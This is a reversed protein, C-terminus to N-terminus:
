GAGLAALLLGIPVVLDGGSKKKTTTSANQLVGKVTLQVPNKSSGSGGDLETQAMLAKVADGDPLGDPELAPQNRKSNWWREFGLFAATTRDTWVGAFDAPSSGFPADPISYMADAHNRFFAALMIQVTAIQEASGTVVPESSTVVAPEAPVATQDGGSVKGPPPTGLGDDHPAALSPPPKIPVVDALPPAPAQQNGAQVIEPPAQPKQWSAPLRLAKGTYVALGYKPDANGPNTVLLERWRNKDGTIRAAIKEGTDGSRVPYLSSPYGLPYESSFPPGGSSTPQTSSPPAPPPPAASVPIIASPFWGPPLQIVTGKTWQPINGNSQLKLNPNVALIEKWRNEAGVVTKAVKAPWDGNGQIRWSTGELEGTNRAVHGLLEHALIARKINSDGRDYLGQITARSVGIPPIKMVHLAGTDSPWMALDDCEVGHRQSCQDFTEFEGVDRHDLARQAGFRQVFAAMAARADKPDVALRRALAAAPVSRMQPSHILAAAVKNVAGPQSPFARIPSPVPLRIPFKVVQTRGPIARVASAARFVSSPVLGRTHAAIATQFANRATASLGAALRDRAGQPGKTAIMVAADFAGKALEGGPLQARLERLGLAGLNQHKIAGIAIDMAIQAPGPLAGRAAALGMDKLSDGRGFAAASAMGASVGQGLGPIFAIGTQAIKFLPNNTISGVAGQLERGGRGVSKVVNRGHAIDRAVHAAASIPATVLHVPATIAHGISKVLSSGFWATDDDEGYSGDDAGTVDAAEVYDFAQVGRHREM